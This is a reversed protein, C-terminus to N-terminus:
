SPLSYILSGWPNTLLALFLSNSCFPQRLVTFIRSIINNYLTCFQVPGFGHSSGGARSRPTLESLHARQHPIPTSSFNHTSQLRSGWSRKRTHSQSSQGLCSWLSLGQKSQNVSTTPSGPSSQGCQVWFWYASLFLHRSTSLFRAAWLLCPIGGANGGWWEKREQDAETGEWQDSRGSGAWKQAEWGDSRGSRNLFSYIVSLSFGLM